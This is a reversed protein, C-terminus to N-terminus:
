DWDVWLVEGSEPHIYVTVDDDRRLGSESRVNELQVEWVWQNREFDMSVGDLYANDDDIHALAIDVAEQRTITPSDPRQGTVPTPSPSPTGQGRWMINATIMSAAVATAGMLALIAIIAIIFILKSKKKPPEDHPQQYQNNNNM